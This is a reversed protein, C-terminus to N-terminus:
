LAVTLNALATGHNRRGRQNVPKREGRAVPAVEGFHPQWNHITESLNRERKPASNRVAVHGHLGSRETFQSKIAPCTHLDKDWTPCLITTVSQRDWRM